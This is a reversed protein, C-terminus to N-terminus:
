RMKRRLQKMATHMRSAVTGSPIALIEGAEGYTYGEILCLMCVQRYKTDLAKINGLLQLLEERSHTGEEALTQQDFHEEITTHLYATYNRSSFWSNIVNVAIRTLWASFKHNEELRKLSRFARIFTDQTLDQAVAHNRVVRWILQFIRQEHLRVLEGFANKDGQKAREVLGIENKSGPLVCLIITEILILLSNLL